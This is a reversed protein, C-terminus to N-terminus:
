FLLNSDGDNLQIIGSPKILFTESFWKKKQQFNPKAIMIFDSGMLSRFQVCIM